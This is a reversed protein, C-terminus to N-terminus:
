SEGLLHNGQQKSTDVSPDYDDDVEAGLLADAQRESSTKRRELEAVLAAERARLQAPTKTTM